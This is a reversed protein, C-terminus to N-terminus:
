RRWEERTEWGRYGRSYDSAIAGRGIAADRTHRRAAELDGAATRARLEVGMRWSLPEAEYVLGKWVTLPALLPLWIGSKPFYMDLSLSPVLLSMEYKMTPVIPARVAAPALLV